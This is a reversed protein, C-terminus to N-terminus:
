RCRRISCRAGPTPSCRLGRRACTSPLRTTAGRSRLAAAGMGVVVLVAVAAGCGGSTCGVNRRAPGSRPQYPWCSALAAAMVLASDPPYRMTQALELATNASSRNWMVPIQAAVVYAAAAVVIPWAGRRLKVIVGVVIALVAWGASDAVAARLGDAPEPDVPGVDMARGGIVPDGRQQDHAM